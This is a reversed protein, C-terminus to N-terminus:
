SKEKEKNVYHFDIEAIGGKKDQIYDRMYCGNEAVIHAKAIERYNSPKGNMRLLIGEREM